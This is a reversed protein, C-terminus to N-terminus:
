PLYIFPFAPDILFKFPDRTGTNISVGINANDNSLFYSFYSNTIMNLAWSSNSETQMSHYDSNRDFGATDYSGFKMFSTTKFSNKDVYFSIVM